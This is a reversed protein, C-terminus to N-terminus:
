LISEISYLKLGTKDYIEFVIKKNNIKVYCLHHKIFGIEQYNKVMFDNRKPSDVDGGSYFKKKARHENSEWLYPPNNIKRTLAAELKGGGGGITLFHVGQPKCIDTRHFHEFIHIHGYIVTKIEYKKIVPILQEELNYFCGHTSTSYIPEHFILIKNEVYDPLSTLTTNLWDMQKESIKDDFRGCNYNDLFIFITNRFIFYHYLGEKQNPIDHPLIDIWMDAMKPIVADHNGTANNMPYYPTIDKLQNFITRWHTPIRGDSVFDGAGIIFSINSFKNKVLDVFWDTKNGSGHIDGILIFEIYENDELKSGIKATKFTYWNQATPNPNKYEYITNPILNKLKINWFGKSTFKIKQSHIKKVNKTSKIRYQIIQESQNKKLFRIVKKSFHGCIIMGNSPDTSKDAPLILWPGYNKRFMFKRRLIWNSGFLKLLIMGMLIYLSIVFYAIIAQVDAIIFIPGYGSFYRFFEWWCLFSVIFGLPVLILTIIKVSKYKFLVHKNYIPLFIAPPLLLFPMIFFFILDIPWYEYRWPFTMLTM